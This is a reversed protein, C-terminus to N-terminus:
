STVKDVTWGMRIRAVRVAEMDAIPDHKRTYHKDISSGDFIGFSHGDVRGSTHVTEITTCDCTGVYETPKSREVLRFTINSM